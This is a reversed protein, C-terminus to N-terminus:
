KRTLLSTLSDGHSVIKGYFDRTVDQKKDYKGRLRGHFDRLIRNGQTDTYVTGLLRGYFDRIQQRKLM